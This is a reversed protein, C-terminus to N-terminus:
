EFRSKYKIDRQNIKDMIEIKMSGCYICRDAVSNKAYFFRNCKECHYFRVVAEAM